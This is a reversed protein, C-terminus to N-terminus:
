EKIKNKIFDISKVPSPDINSLVARYITTYDLFYILNIIKSLINGHISNVEKFEIKNLEIYEKLIEWREKTKIHDDQGEILIPKVKSEREWAVIGNHSAELVDETMAHMKSNEQLSNKFRIASSELGIPYYILPIDSIWEALLIAPNDASLNDSSIRKKMKELEVISENVDKSPIPIIPNLVKLM